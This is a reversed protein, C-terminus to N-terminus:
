MLQKPDLDIITRIKHSGKPIGALIKSLENFKEHSIKFIYQWRQYGNVKEIPAPKPGIQQVEQKSKIEKRLYINIKQLYPGLASEEKSSIILHILRSFPPYNLAKRNMIEKRYFGEYDHTKAHEIAYHEPQYTQIIVKGPMSGRGARGAVQILLQFSQEACRFDPLNLSSEIGIVAVLTVAEIHHGKAIMQTGILIDGESRFKKLQEDSEKATKASDRDFRIMRADPYMKKMEAMIRQTGLGSYELSNENCNQCKHTAAIIINCRHCRFKKDSHYTYSLGCGTCKHIKKCKSCSIYPAFGRRNILIIVKEKRKLCNMIAQELP